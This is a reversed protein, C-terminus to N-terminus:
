RGARRGGATSPEAIGLHSLCGAARDLTRGLAEALPGAEALTLLADM